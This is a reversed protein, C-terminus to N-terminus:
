LGALSLGRDIGHRAVAAYVKDSPHKKKENIDVMDDPLPQQPMRWYKPRWRYKRLVTLFAPSGFVDVRGWVRRFRRRTSWEFYFASWASAIVLLGSGIAFLGSIARPAIEHHDAGLLPLSPADFAISGAFLMALVIYLWVMVRYPTTVRAYHHKRQQTVFLVLAAPALLLWQGAGSTSSFLTGRQALVALAFGLLGAAILKSNDAPEIRVFAHVRAGVGRAPGRQEKGKFGNAEGPPGNRRNYFHYAFDACDLEAAKDAAEARGRWRWGLHRDERDTRFRRGSGWDLFAVRTETPPAIRFYYSKCDEYAPANFTYRQPFINYRAYQRTRWNRWKLRWPNNTGSAQRTEDASRPTDSQTYDARLFVTSGPKGEVWCLYKTEKAIRQCNTELLVVKDNRKDKDTVKADDLVRKLHTKAADAIDDQILPVSTIISALFAVMDAVSDKHCTRLWEAEDLFQRILLMALVHGHQRRTLLHCRSGDETAVSFDAFRRRRYTGLSVIYPVTKTALGGHAEISPLTPLRLQIERSWRQGGAELFGVEETVRWVYRSPDWQMRSLADLQYAQVLDVDDDQPM